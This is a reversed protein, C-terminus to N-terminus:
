VGSIKRAYDICEQLAREEDVSLRSVERGYIDQGEVDWVSPTKERIRLYWGPVRDAIPYERIMQEHKAPTIRSKEVHAIRPWQELGGIDQEIRDFEM